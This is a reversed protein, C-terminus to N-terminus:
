IHPAITGPTKTRDPWMCFILLCSCLKPFYTMVDKAMIEEPFIIKSLHMKPNSMSRQYYNGLM